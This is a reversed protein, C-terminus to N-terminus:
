ESCANPWDSPLSPPVQFPYLGKAPVTYGGLDNNRLIDMAAEVVHERVTLELQSLLSRGCGSM